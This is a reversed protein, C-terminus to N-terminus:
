KCAVSGSKGKEMHGSTITTPAESPTFDCDPCRGSLAPTHECCWCSLICCWEAGFYVTLSCLVKMSWELYLCTKQEKGSSKGRKQMEFIWGIESQSAVLSFLSKVDRFATSKVLGQFLSCWSLELWMKQNEPPWPVSISKWLFYILLGIESWFPHLLLQITM